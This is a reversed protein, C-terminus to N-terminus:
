ISAELEIDVETYEGDTVAINAENHVAYGNLTAKLNHTGAKALIFSYNGDADTTTAASASGNLQMSVGALGNGTEVDTVSGMLGTEGSKGGKSKGRLDDVMRLNKYDILMDANDIGVLEMLTDIKLLLEVSETFLTDLKVTGKKREDRANKPGKISLEFQSLSETAATIQGENLGYDTMEGLRPSCTELIHQCAVVMNEQPMADLQTSSYDVISKLVLDNSVMAFAKVRKIIELMQGILKQKLEEKTQTRAKPDTLQMKEAANIKQYLTDLATILAALAPILNLTEVNKKLFDLVMTIMRHRNILNKKM